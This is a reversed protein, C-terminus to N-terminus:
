HGTMDCRLSNTLKRKRLTLYVMPEFTLAPESAVIDAELLACTTEVKDLPVIAYIMNSDESTIMAWDMLMKDAM